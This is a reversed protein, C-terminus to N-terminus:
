ESHTTTGGSTNEVNEKGTNQIEQLPINGEDEKWSSEDFSREPQFNSAPRLDQFIFLNEFITTLLLM